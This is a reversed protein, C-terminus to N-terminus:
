QRRFHREWERSLTRPVDRAGRERMVGVIRKLTNAPEVYIGNSQIVILRWGDTDLEERRQLDRDWQVQSEAHHRGDYEIVLKLEPYSLDFRKSVEGSEDYVIYNVVPEPLGAFVMLLRLRTEMPSDVGVRVLAAARAGARCGKGRWGSAAAVLKGPTTRGKRVLSDGLVVLDVLNLEDALEIFAQGPSSVRVGRFTVIDSGDATRHSGVGQRESRNGGRPSSVHTLPHNPVIGGWIQAATHHSAHSGAPSIGLVATARLLPSVAVDAGVYVDYFLKRFRASSLHKVPIGARRAEARGFPTNPDLEMGQAHAGM